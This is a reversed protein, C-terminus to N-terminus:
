GLIMDVEEDANITGDSETDQSGRAVCTVRRTSEMGRRLTEIEYMLSNMRYKLRLLTEEEYNLTGHLEKETHYMAMREQASETMTEWRELGERLFAIHQEKVSIVTKLEERSRLAITMLGEHLPLVDSNSTAAITTLVGKLLECGCERNISSSRDDDSTTDCSM